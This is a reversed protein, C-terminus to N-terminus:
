SFVSLYTTPDLWHQSLVKYQHQIIEDYHQIARNVIYEIKNFDADNPIIQMPHAIKKYEGVDSCLCVRGIAASELYKLNSKCRNFLNDQLPAIIFKSRLAYKAFVTPYANIDVWNCVTHANQIFSPSHGMVNVEKNYLYKVLEPTFDGYNDASWHTPSGAYFFSLKASPAYYDFRWRNYELCNKLVIINKYGLRRISETLEDTSVTVLDALQGLYETMDDNNEKWRINCNNYAPLEEWLCDDYDIAIKAGQKHKYDILTKFVDANCIRATWIWDCSNTNFQLPPAINVRAYNYMAQAPYILRYYGCAKNDMPVVNINLM